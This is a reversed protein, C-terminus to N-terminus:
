QGIFRKVSDPTPCIEILVRPWPVYWEFLYLVLDNFYCVQENFDSLNFISTYDLEVFDRSLRTVNKYNRYHRVNQTLGNETV